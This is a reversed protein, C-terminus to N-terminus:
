IITDLSQRTNPILYHAAPIDVLDFTIKYMLTLRRDIRFQELTRWNLDQLMQPVSSIRQHTFPLADPQRASCLKLRLLIQQQILPGFEHHM